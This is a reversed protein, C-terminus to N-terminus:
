LLTVEITGEHGKLEVTRPSDDDHRWQLRIAEADEKVVRTM